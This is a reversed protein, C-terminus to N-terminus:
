RSLCYDKNIKCRVTVCSGLKLSDPFKIRVLESSKFLLSFTAYKILYVDCQILYSRLNSNSIFEM